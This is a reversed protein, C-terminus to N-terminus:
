VFGSLFFMAIFVLVIALSMLLIVALASREMSMNHVFKGGVIYLYMQYIGFIWGIVPIWILSASASSYLVFRATSEYTGTGGLAKYVIYLGTADVFLALISVTIMVIAAAMPATSFLERISEPEETFLLHLFTSIAASGAAFVVPYFYGGTTPMKRFFDSPSQMVEKWTQIYGVEM